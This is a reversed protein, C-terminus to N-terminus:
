EGRTSLSAAEDIHQRFRNRTGKFKAGSGAERRVIFRVGHVLVATNKVTSQLLRLLLVFYWQWSWNQMQGRENWSYWANLRVTQKTILKLGLTELSMLYIM